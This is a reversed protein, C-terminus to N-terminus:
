EERGVSYNKKTSENMRQIEGKIKLCHILTKVFLIINAVQQLLVPLTIFLNYAYNGPESFLISSISRQTILRLKRAATNEMYCKKVGVYPHLSEPLVSSVNLLIIIIVLLFPVGWGYISYQLM